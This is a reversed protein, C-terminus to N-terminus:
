RTGAYPPLDEMRQAELEAGLRSFIDRAEGWEGAGKGADGQAFEYRAWARLTRAKEAELAAENSVLLSETFCAVPEVMKSKDSAGNPAIGAPKRQAAVQGLVRWAAAIYEQSEVA